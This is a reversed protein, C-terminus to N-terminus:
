KQSESPKVDDRETPPTYCIFHVVYTLQLIHRIKLERYQAILM